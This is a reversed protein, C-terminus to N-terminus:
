NVDSTYLGDQIGIADATRLCAAINHPDGLNEFVLVTDRVRARLVTQLRSLRRESLHKSLVGIIAKSTMKNDVSCVIGRWEDRGYGSSRKSPPTWQDACPVTRLTPLGWCRCVNDFRDVPM